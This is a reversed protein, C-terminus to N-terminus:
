LVGTCAWSFRFGFCFPREAGRSKEGGGGPARIRGGWFGVPPDPPGDVWRAVLSRVSVSGLFFLWMGHHSDPVPYTRKKQTHGVEDGNRHYNSGNAYIPYTKPLITLFGRILVVLCWSSAGKKPFFFFTHEVGRVPRQTPHFFVVSWSVPPWLYRTLTENDLPKNKSSIHPLKPSPISTPLPTM